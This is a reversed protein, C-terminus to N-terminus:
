AADSEEEEKFLDPYHQLMVRADALAYDFNERFEPLAEDRLKDPTPVNGYEYNRLLTTAFEEFATGNGTYTAHLKLVASFSTLVAPIFGFHWDSASESWDVSLGFDSCGTIDVAQKRLEEIRPLDESVKATFSGPEVQAAHCLLKERFLVATLNLFVHLKAYAELEGQTIENLM